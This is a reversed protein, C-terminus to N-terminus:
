SRGLASLTPAVAPVIPPLAKVAHLAVTLTEVTLWGLVDGTVPTSYDIDGRANLVALEVDYSGSHKIISAGRGNPFMLVMHVGDFCPETLTVFGSLNEPLAVTQSM